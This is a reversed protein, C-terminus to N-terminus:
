PTCWRRSGTTTTVFPCHAKPSRIDSSLVLFEADSTRGQATQDWISQSLWADDAISDLYPTIAQGDVELGMAWSSLAEVQLVVLNYGKAAGTM